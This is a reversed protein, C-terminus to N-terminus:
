ASLRRESFSEAQEIVRQVAEVQLDPPYGHNRLIRRTINRIRARASERRNWDTTLNERIEDVLLHAIVRLKEDGLVEVASENDALADFFAQEEPSIGDDELSGKDRIEKAIDILQEIVQYTTLVNDHYRSIIDTLRESFRRAETVNVKQRSKIQGALLRRLAELALNKQPLNKMDQLFKDSLVGIDARESGSAELLDIIGVSSLSRDILFRIASEDPRGTTRGTTEKQRLVKDVAQFFGVNDRIKQAEESTAALAFAKNLAAMLDHFRRRVSKRKKDAKPPTESKDKALLWDIAGALAALRQETTGSVGQAYDFGKFLAAINEYADMLAGVAQKQDIGTAEAARKGRYKTLAQKLNRAIGIYDVIRGGPKDRFVRNVRAIAQMLGHGRMPKDIYLTHLCPVDFGTLWMDCVIVIQLPDDPKKFRKAMDSRRKAAGIHKQWEPPDANGGTMVIKVRGEADDDDAWDPRLAAMEEYLAVCIRRSMCVVMAKGEFTEQQTEFHSVIDEAVLKVRKPAGVIQEIKAWKRKVNEKADAVENELVEEVAKDLKPKEVDPLEIHPLRSEYYIPVTIGDAVADGIDYIDIYDGFVSPTNAQVEEIPTGTFGIFSANPLADRMHKAFGYSVKGTKDDVHAEFGYQSRHAEDTIIVINERDSFLPVDTADKTPAFKQITTFVIGGSAVSLKAQLDNKDDAQVPTQRLIDRCASFTKFLQDDLDRRDTVVVITPNRMEERRVLAAAYFVMVLSKGSGQTHWVVGGRRDGAEHDEASALGRARPDEALAPASETRRPMARLTTGVAKEVAYKQHYGAIIKAIAGDFNGFLIFDRMLSLFREKGFVGQLLTSLEPQAETADLRTGDITRWPMFREADATLSGIRANLGDAVVLAENTRFLNGIENKYIDLQNVAGSLDDYDAGPKKLEIVALPLGNVFVVVDPRRTHEHQIVTFQNLVLWDNNEPNDFDALRLFDHTFAGDVARYEIPAGDCMAQHLRRNESMLDPTHSSLLHKVAAERADEPIHPNLRGVAALLRATLVVESLTGRQAEDGDPGALDPPLYDYGLAQFQAIVLEEIDDETLFAM